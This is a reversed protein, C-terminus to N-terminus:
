ATTKKLVDIIKNSVRTKCIKLTNSLYGILKCQANYKANTKIKSSDIYNITNEFQNFWDSSIYNCKCLKSNIIQM